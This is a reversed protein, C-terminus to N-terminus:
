EIELFEDCASLDLALRAKCALGWNVEHLLGGSRARIKIKLTQYSIVDKYKEASKRLWSERDQLHFDGTDYRAVQIGDDVDVVIRHARM